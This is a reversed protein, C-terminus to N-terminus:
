LTYRLEHLIATAHQMSGMSDVHHSTCATLVSSSYLNLWCNETSPMDTMGEIIWSCTHLENSWMEKYYAKIQIDSITQVIRSRLLIIIFYIPENAYSIPTMQMNISWYLENDPLRGPKHKYRCHSALHMILQM